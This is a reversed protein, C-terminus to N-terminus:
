EEEAPALKLLAPGEAIAGLLVPVALAYLLQGSQLGIVRRRGVWLASRWSVGGSNIRQGRRYEADCSRLGGWETPAAPTKVQLYGHGNTSYCQEVSNTWTVALNRSRASVTAYDPGSPPPAMQLRWERDHEENQRREEEAVYSAYERNAQTEHLM